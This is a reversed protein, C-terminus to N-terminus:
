PEETAFLAQVQKKQVKGMANRPLDAVWQIRTPAKYVALREKAWSRLETLTIDEEGVLCAAVIEGWEEDPVGVVACEGIAPHTRLVEEIELASVKYGGTKIIDVSSRGLLRFAQDQMTAIDGTRFWGDAFAKATIEPRRWYEAFVAPGRVQVEAPTDPDTTVEGEETVRRVEMGPLPAGVFGPMRIGHLPNSLAMGIETMGYRELLTHGSIRRWTELTSVPLAASGSVMLRMKRCGATIRQQDAESRQGWATILKSYITPVAMFLTLDGDAFRDLVADADFPTLFECTAGTTLACHLVNIIGHIHHLPLVHLIHDTQSWEWASVLSDVQACINAHTTVVGKPKSTTGSTYLIMARRAPDIQPLPKAPALLAQDITIMRLGREIVLPIVRDALDSHALMVSAQTDELVYDLEAPPHMLGLPVAVGGAKWIGLQAAAYEFGPPILYTVRAEELDSAQDLLASAVATSATELDAHTYSDDASIIATREPLVEESLTARQPATPPTRRGRPHTSTEIKAPALEAELNALVDEPAAQGCSFIDLALYGYEPYTHITAHSESLLAFVTVGAGDGPFTVAHHSLVQFNAEALAALLVQSLYAEDQLKEANVEYFDALLHRGILPPEASSDFMM